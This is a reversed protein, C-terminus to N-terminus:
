RTGSRIATSRASNTKTAHNVRPRQLAVDEMSNGLFLSTAIFVRAVNVTRSVAITTSVVVEM